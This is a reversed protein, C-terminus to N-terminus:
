GRSRRRPPITSTVMPRAASGTGPSFAWTVGARFERLDNGDERAFRIGADLAIKDHLQWIGGVVGSVTRGDNQELVVEAVPCIPLACTQVGTM